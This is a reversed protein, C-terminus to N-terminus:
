TVNGQLCIFDFDETGPFSFIVMTKEMIVTVIPLSVFYIYAPVTSLSVTVVLQLNLKNLSFSLM